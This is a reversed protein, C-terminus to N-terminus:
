SVSQDDSIGAITDKKGHPQELGACVCHFDHYLVRSPLRNSRPLGRLFTCYDFPSVALRAHAGTTSVCYRTLPHPPTLPRQCCFLCFPCRTYGFPGNNWFGCIHRRCVELAVRVSSDHWKNGGSCFGVSPPFSRKQWRNILLLLVLYCSMEHFPTGFSVSGVRAVTPMQLPGGRRIAYRSSPGRPLGIWRSVISAYSIIKYVGRNAAYWRSELIVIKRDRRGASSKWGLFNWSEFM